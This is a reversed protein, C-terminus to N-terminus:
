SSQNKEISGFLTQALPRTHKNIIEEKSIHTFGLNEPVFKILLAKRVASIARRLSSKSTRFLTSLIVNSLGTKMKCFFIAVSPTLSRAPTSKILGEVSDCLERSNAKTIGLLSKYDTDTLGKADDFDLCQKENRQCLLRMQQLLDTITTRNVFSNETTQLQKVADSTFMGDHLHLVVDTEQHYLVIKRLLFQQEVRQQLLWWSQDQSKACVAIHMLNLLPPWAFRCLHHAQCAERRNTKTRQHYCQPVHFMPVCM